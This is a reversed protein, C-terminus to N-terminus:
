KELDQQIFARLEDMSPPDDFVSEHRLGTDGAGLDLNLGVELQALTLASPWCRGALFDSVVTHPVDCHEAERNISGLETSTKNFDRLEFAAVRIREHAPNRRCQRRQWEPYLDIPAPITTM